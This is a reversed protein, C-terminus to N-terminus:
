HHVLVMECRHTNQEEDPQESISIALTTLSRALLVGPFSDTAMSDNALARLITFVLVWVRCNYIIPIEKIVVVHSKSRMHWWGSGRGAALWWQLCRRIRCRRGPPEAWLQADPSCSWTQVSHTISVSLCVDGWRLVLPIIVIIILLCM